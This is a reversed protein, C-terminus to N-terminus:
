RTEMWEEIGQWREMLEDLRHEETFRIPECYPCPYNPDAKTEGCEYCKM